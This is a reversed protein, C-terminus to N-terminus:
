SHNVVSVTADPNGVDANHDDASHAYVSVQQVAALVCLGEKWRQTKDGAYSYTEALKKLVGLLCSPPLQPETCLRLILSSFFLLDDAPELSELFSALPQLLSEAVSVAGPACPGGSAHHLLLLVSPGLELPYCRCVDDAAFLLLLLMAGQRLLVVLLARQHVAHMLSPLLLKLAQLLRAAAQRQRM